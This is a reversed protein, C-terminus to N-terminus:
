YYSSSTKRRYEYEEDERDLKTSIYGGKRFLALSMSVCDCNHVLIGNAFYTYANEVSLNYVEQPYKNRLNFQVIRKIPIMGSDIGFVECGQELEEFNVWGKPTSIPHKDSGKLYSVDSGDLGTTKLTRTEVLGTNGAELVKQAGFHSWVEDGVRVDEINKESGDSMLIKTGAVFCYDDHQGAPFAAVEDIVEDAWRTNPAWVRGSSFIDSIANLRSIKDNGRTPTFDSVVIGMHRLEYILPAGSAKKEIILSDPEWYRYEGLVKEKLQPFELRDRKADLLIINARDIGKEDPLNFIGWTTCASYDARNHKEFATDWAQLIFSTPPPTDQEWRQWWDRKVIAGEESTPNQQYQAQWKSVDIANRTAELEEISWFEPWLPKGSPLIAPLEVVKWKDSGGELQKQKVRGTLDRLSWRTQIVLISGGPQLRQRPGSTYWEYVKDYIEPNAAAIAAEQESHPDDIILCNHALVGECYFNSTDTQLDVVWYGEGSLLSEFDEASAGIDSSSLQRPLSRLAINRKVDSQKSCRSRYSSGIGKTTGSRLLRLGRSRETQGETEGYVMERFVTGGVSQTNWLLRDWLLSEQGTNKEWVEQMKQYINKSSSKKRKNSNCLLSDRLLSERRGWSSRDFTSARMSTKRFRKWMSRLNVESKITRGHLLKQMSGCTNSKQEWLSVSSKDITSSLVSAFLFNKNRTGTEWTESLKEQPREFDESLIEPVQLMAVNNVTDARKYGDETYVRHDPTCIFGNINVLEKKLQTSIAKVTSWRNEKSNHDYAWVEDGVKVKYLPIIGMRTAVKCSYYACDAGIGTVAGSVGIAYYSGGATTNWRGAAKSDQQLEVGPFIEQYATSNVLNRVKRGFGVALEATHSCQIIKKDPNKGLYWAPLLYSGFESKTNHTCLYGKGALFLGDENEVKICQTDGTANLKEVKIYRGFTRETKLTRDEKRPLNCINTAYFSLRHHVGYSVDGIKAETSSMSNKIGLSCLLERVQTIFGLSKQAFFCQGKKSVNGDSDMLGKLLDRRQELSATLYDEPIHKNNLVGLERLAVKLGLIGFLYKTKQDTTVYGRDEFQKRVFVADDDHSTIHSQASAGDGLWLGLVYPDILLQKEPYISGEMQPLMPLRVDGTIKGPLTHVGGGRSAKIRVGQQRLWLQETTYDRFVGTGRKMRVTWLHEGDVDLSHGDDTTVRYLQQNHFVESKGIVKTPKGDQGFVDDGVQLTQMTKWGTPTPIPEDIQVAHRPGLNIILRKNEGSVVKEFEQAMRAHHRGYIFSPWVQQVFALFNQQAFERNQRRKLEEILAILRARESLPATSLAQKLLDEDITLDGLPISM